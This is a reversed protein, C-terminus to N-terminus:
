KSLLPIADDNFRQYHVARNRSRDPQPLGVNTHSSARSQSSGHVRCPHSSDPHRPFLVLSIKLTNHNLHHKCLRCQSESLRKSKSLKVVEQLEGYQKALTRASLM